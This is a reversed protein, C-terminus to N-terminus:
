LDNKSNKNLSGLYKFDDDEVTIVNVDTKTKDLSVGELVTHVSDSYDGCHVADNGVGSCWIRDTMDNIFCKGDNCFKCKKM